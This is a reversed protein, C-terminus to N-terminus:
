QTQRPRCAERGDPSGRPPALQDHRDQHASWKLPSSEGSCIPRRIPKGYGSGSRADLTRAGNAVARSNMGCARGHRRFEVNFPGRRELLRGQAMKPSRETGLKVHAPSTCRQLM